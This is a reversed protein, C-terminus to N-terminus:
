EKKGGQGQLKRRQHRQHRQHHQVSHHRLVPVRVDYFITGIVLQMCISVDRRHLPQDNRLLDDDIMTLQGKWLVSKGLAVTFNLYPFSKKRAVTGDAETASVQLSSARLSEVRGGIKQARLAYLHTIGLGHSQRCGPFIRRPPM